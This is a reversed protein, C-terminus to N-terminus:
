ISRRAYERVDSRDIEGIMAKERGEELRMEYDTNKHRDSAQLIAEAHQEDRIPRLPNEREMRSILKGRRSSPCENDRVIMMQVQDFKYDIKEQAIERATEIKINTLRVLRRCWRETKEEQTIKKAEKKIESKKTIYNKIKTKPFECVQPLQEYGYGNWEGQPNYIEIDANIAEAIKRIANINKTGSIKAIKGKKTQTIIGLINQRVQEEITITKMNKGKQPAEKGWWRILPPPALFMLIILNNQSTMAVIRAITPCRRISSDASM